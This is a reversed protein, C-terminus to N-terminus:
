LAKCHRQTQTKVIPRLDLHLNNSASHADCADIIVGVEARDLPFDPSLASEPTEPVGTREVLPVSSRKFNVMSGVCPEAIFVRFVEDHQARSAMAIEVAKDSAMHGFALCDCDRLHAVGGTRAM